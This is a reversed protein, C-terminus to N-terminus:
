HMYIYKHTHDTWTMDMNDEKSFLRHSDIREKKREPIPRLNDTKSYM